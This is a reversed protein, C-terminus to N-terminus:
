IIHLSAGNEKEIGNEFEYIKYDKGNLFMTRNGSWSIQLKNAARSCGVYWIRKEESIEGNKHPLLGQECGIFYVNNSEKGKFQHVTSLILDKEKKSKRGYTLKRMRDLFEAMNDKKNEAIKVVNDINDIPDSHMPDGTNRYRNYLNHNRIIIRLGEAANQFPDADRAFSLLAKVENQDFFDKKGLNRYKIGLGVAVRQVNFLQRNTRALIASNEPDKSADLLVRKAETDPDPYQIFIPDIGDENDTTMHSAIGNDVPLIEKYFQVLRKTSRYNHGLYLTKAGPFARSFNSLNGSQASRWEYILQNEDGVAMINGGFLLQLLRFQTVDTDQCEDVSIYRKKNRNRVDENTELLKITERMLSDFDLWGEQRCRDEYDGYALAFYYDNGTADKMAQEPEVNGCKWESLKNQLMRFSPIAPYAKVLEFLLQYDEGRVPIVADTLKFSLHERERKILELAFSHFTRFVRESDIIGVRRAAESAASNTFTLNLIDSVQIGKTIMNLFREVLCATKGSGPGSIAVYVGDIADIIAKQQENFVM